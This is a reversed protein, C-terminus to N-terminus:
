QRSRAADWWQRAEVDSLPPQFYRCRSCFADLSRQRVIREISLENHVQKRKVEEAFLEGQLKRQASPDGQKEDLAQRKEDMSHDVVGVCYCIIETRRRWNDVLDKWLYACAQDQVSGKGGTGLRDRDRFQANTRNIRMTIADDLRRYERLLEKFLSLDRCTEPSVHVLQPTLSPAQVALSGLQPFKPAM